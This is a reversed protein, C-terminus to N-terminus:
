KGQDQEFESRTLPCKGADRGLNREGAETTAWLDGPRDTGLQSSEQSRHRRVVRVPSRRRVLHGHCQM